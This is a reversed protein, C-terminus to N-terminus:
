IPTAQTHSIMLVICYLVISDGGGGGRRRGPLNTVDYLTHQSPSKARIIGSRQHHRSIKMELNTEADIDGAYNSRSFPHSPAPKSTTITHIASRRWRLIEETKKIPPSLQLVRMFFISAHHKRFIACHLTLGDKCLSWASM